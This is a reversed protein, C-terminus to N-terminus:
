PPLVLCETSDTSKLISINYIFGSKDQISDLYQGNISYVYITSNEKSYFVVSYLPNTSIHAFQLPLRHPHHITRIIADLFLPISVHTSTTSVSPATRRAPV